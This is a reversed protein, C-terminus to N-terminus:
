AARRRERYARTAERGRERHRALKEPDAKVAEWKARWKLALGPRCAARYAANHAARTARYAPDNALRHRHQEADRARLCARCVQLNHPNWFELDLPWWAAVRAARCDPCFREWGTDPRYRVDTTM